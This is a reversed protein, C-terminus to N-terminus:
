HRRCRGESSEGGCWVCWGRWAVSHHMKAWMYLCSACALPDPRTVVSGSAQAEHKYLWSKHMSVHKVDNGALASVVGIIATGALFGLFYVLDRYHGFVVFGDAKMETNRLTLWILGFCPVCILAFVLAAILRM